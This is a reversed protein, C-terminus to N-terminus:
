GQVSGPISIGVQALVKGGEDYINLAMQFTRCIGQKAELQWDLIIGRDSDLMEDALGKHIDSLKSM